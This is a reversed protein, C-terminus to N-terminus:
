QHTHNGLGHVAFWRQEKGEVVLSYANESYGCCYGIGQVHDDTERQPSCSSRGVGTM